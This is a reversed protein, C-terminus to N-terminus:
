DVKEDFHKANVVIVEIDHDTGYHPSKWPCARFLRSEPKEYALEPMSCNHADQSQNRRSRARSRIEWDTLLRSGFASPSSLSYLRQSCCAPEAVKYYLPKIKLDCHIYYHHSTSCTSHVVLTVDVLREPQQLLRSRATTDSSALTSLALREDATSLRNSQNCETTSSRRLAVSSILHYRTRPASGM